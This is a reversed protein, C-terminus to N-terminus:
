FVDSFLQKTSSNKKWFIMNENFCHGFHGVQFGLLWFSKAFSSFCNNEVSFLHKEMLYKDNLAWTGKFVSWLSLKAVM